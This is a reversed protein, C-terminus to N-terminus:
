VKRTIALLGSQSLADMEAFPLQRESDRDSATSAFRAALDRAVALAQQETELLTAQPHTSNLHHLQANM